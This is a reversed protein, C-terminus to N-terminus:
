PYTQALYTILTEQESDDLVAGKNVMRLVATRWEDVTKHASTVRTLTHCTTCREELLTKGDPGTPVVPLNNVVPTNVPQDTVVPATTSQIEAGPLVTDPTPMSTGCAALLLAPIVLLFLSKSNNM